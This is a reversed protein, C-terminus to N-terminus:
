SLGVIWVAALADQTRHPKVLLTGSCPTDVSLIFWKEQLVSLVPNSMLGFM